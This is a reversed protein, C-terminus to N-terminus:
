KNVIGYAGFWGAGLLAAKSNLIIKVTIKKVLHQMRDNDLFNDYFVNQQLLSSIKPPIGGGLYLGGTAKIKLVLNSCERALYRIFLQMTEECVPDKEDLASQSIVASPDEEALKQQLWEARKRKKVDCLFDYIDAIGPGAIVKEWSVIEYKGQLYHLLEIDQETRPGFDTHGGETPFPHYCEGDWFLGAEGLGTGPAIIAINGAYRDPGQHITIFDDEELAALGYATAELDNILVVDTVGTSKRIDESDLDWGLNTIEVKGQLVPGAVGLCIRGPKIGPNVKIFDLLIDICSPYKSSPYTAERVLDIIAATATFMALNTKTGGVDGALVTIPKNGLSSKGPFSFPIAQTNGM